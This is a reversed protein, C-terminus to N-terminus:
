FLVHGATLSWLAVLVVGMINLVLGPLLMDKVEIIGTSYVIANPPTANPLMFALSCALTAPILMLNYPLDLKVLVPLFISATATNSAVETVVTVIGASALPLLWHPWHSLAVVGGSLSVLMGSEKIGDSLAFGGGMLLVVAWPLEKMDEWNVIPEAPLGGRVSGVDYRASRPPPATKGRVSRLCAAVPGGRPWWAPPSAPLFFLLVAAGMSAVADSPLGGFWDAWGGLPGHRTLWLFVMVLFVGSITREEWSMPGLGRLQGRLQSVELDPPHARSTFHYCFFLWLCLVLACCLPVAFALWNAFSLEEGTFNQLIGVLMGNPATGILTAMGGINAAYAVGLVMGKAFREQAAAWEPGRQPQPEELPGSSLGGTARLGQSEGEQELELSRYGGRAPRARGGEASGDPSSGGEEGLRVQAGGAAVAGGVKGNGAEEDGGGATAPVEGARGEDRAGGGAKAGAGGVASGGLQRAMTLAMPVMMACTATNSIWMSLVFPALICGLLVGRPSSGTLALTNLAVRRHLGHKQVALAVVFSGLFLMLTDNFYSKAITRSSTIGLLPFAVLPILATAALPVVEGVWWAAMWVIAGLMALQPAAGESAFLKGGAALVLCALPAGYAAFWAAARAM